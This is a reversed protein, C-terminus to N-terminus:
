NLKSFNPLLSVWSVVKKKEGATQNKFKKALQGFNVM